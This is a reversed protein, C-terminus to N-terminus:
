KEERVQAERAGARALAREAEALEGRVGALQDRVGALEWTVCVLAARAEEAEEKYQAAGGAGAGDVGRVASVETDEAALVERAAHASSIKKAAKGGKAKGKTPKVVVLPEAEGGGLMGAVDAGGGGVVWSSAAMSQAAMAPAFEATIQTDKPSPWPIRGVYYIYVCVCLWVYM